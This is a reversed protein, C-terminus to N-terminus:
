DGRAQCITETLQRIRAGMAALPASRVNVEPAPTPCRYFPPYLRRGEDGAGTLTAEGVRVAAEPSLRGATVEHVAVEFATVFPIVGKPLDRHLNRRIYIAAVRGPPQAAAVELFLEPDQETDDGVLIVPRPSAAALAQLHQRKFAATDRERSWDRLVFRAPPFGAREILTRRLHPEVLKPSASVFVVDADLERYLAAMGAYVANRALGRVTARAASTVHTIKVTDDVDSLLTFAPPEDGLSPAALGVVVQVALAIAVLV